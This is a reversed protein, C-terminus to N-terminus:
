TASQRVMSKAVERISPIALISYLAGNVYPIIEQNEHGLLDSLVKLVQQAHGVCKQKGVFKNHNFQNRCTNM